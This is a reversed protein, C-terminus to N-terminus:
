SYGLTTERTQFKLVSRSMEFDVKVVVILDGVHVGIDLYSHFATHNRNKM